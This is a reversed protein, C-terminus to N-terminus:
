NLGTASQRNVALQFWDPYCATQCDIKGRERVIGRRRGDWGERVWSRVNVQVARVSPEPMFFSARWYSCM